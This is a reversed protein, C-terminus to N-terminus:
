FGDRSWARKFAALKRDRKAGLVPSSRVVETSVTSRGTATMFAAANVDRNLYHTIHNPRDRQSRQSDHIILTKGSSQLICGMLMIHQYKAKHYRRERFCSFLTLLGSFLCGKATQLSVPGM